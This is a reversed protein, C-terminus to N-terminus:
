PVDKGSVPLFNFIINVSLFSIVNSKEVEVM